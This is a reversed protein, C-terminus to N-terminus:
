SICFLLIDEKDPYDFLSPHQTKGFAVSDIVDCSNSVVCQIDDKLTQNKELVESM